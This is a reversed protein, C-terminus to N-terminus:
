KAITPHGHTFQRLYDFKLAFKLLVLCIHHFFAFCGLHSRHCYHLLQRLDVLVDVVRNCLLVLWAVLVQQPAKPFEVPDSRGEVAPRWSADIDDSFVDIVTSIGHQWCRKLLVEDDCVNWGVVVLDNDVVDVLVLVLLHLQRCFRRLSEM